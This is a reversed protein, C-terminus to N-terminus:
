DRWAGRPHLGLGGDPAVAILASNSASYTNELANFAALQPNDESFLIRYDNSVTLFPVGAATVLMVLTALLVIPWRLRLIATVYRELSSPTM